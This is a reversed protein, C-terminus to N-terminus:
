DMIAGGRDMTGNEGNEVRKCSKKRQLICVRIIKKIQLVMDSFFDYVIM